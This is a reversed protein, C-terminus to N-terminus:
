IEVLLYPAIKQYLEEYILKANKIQTLESYNGIEKRYTIISKAMYFEIYPHRIMEKISAVNINIKKVSDANVYIHEAFGSYRTSDMGYVEQLQEKSHYGGLMTRYKVIRRAFSPGIGRLQQLDLTDASNLEIQLLNTTESIFNKKNISDHKLRIFPELMVFEESSLTYIKKLDDKSFFKGGKNRYNIIANITNERLGMKMWGDKALINPDFPFPNLESVM